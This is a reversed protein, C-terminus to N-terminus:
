DNLNETAIRLANAMITLSVDGAPINPFNSSDIIFVNKFNSIEGNKNTYLNKHISTRMEKNKLMPISGGMHFSRGFNSFKSFFKFIIFNYNKGLTKLQNFVEFKIRKENVKNRVINLNLNEKKITARYTSHDSSILGSTIFIRRIIFNPLLKYFLGLKKKLVIRLLKQDYKIVYYINGINYKINKKSIVTADGATQNEQKENFDKGLYFCPVFFNQSETLNLDKKNSLSNMVIKPTQLAGAGIFLKKTLIKVNENNDFKLEIISNNIFFKKLSLNQKYDIRKEKILKKFYHKTSFIYNDPCGFFCNGCKYCNKDLALRTFGVIYDSSPKKEKLFTKVFNSYLNLKSDDIFDKKIKMEKSLEDNFHSVNMIKECEEYYNTLEDYTIPWNSFQNKLIRVCKAGWINSLGGFSPTEQLELPNFKKKFKSTLSNKKLPLNENDFILEEQDKNELSEINHDSGDICLIKKNSKLLGHVCGLASIGTGIVVNDYIM